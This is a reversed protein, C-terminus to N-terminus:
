NEDGATRRLKAIYFGDCGEDPLLQREEELSFEPHQKLLQRTNEGNEEETVTCTSYLLVGGSKVYRVAVDLIERQLAALKRIDEEKVRYKLDPKHGIVGLGSCPLDALVIDAGDEWTPDFKLADWVEAHVNPTRCRLINERIREVKAGTKDRATVTGGTRAPYTEVSADDAQGEDMRQAAHISKGGPAACVDLVLDGPRPDATEVAMMSSVDQPYLTGDAFEPINELSDVGELYFAYPLRPDVSVSIGRAELSAKVEEPSRTRTDVRVCVPREALYAALIRECRGEGFSAIYRDVIWELMSYQVSLSRVPDEEGSPFAIRDRNRAINRLVGNVYGTLGSFGRQRALRVAENCVASDPVSDMYLLQYVGSELVARIVPKMKETKIDSFQDLIYDLEIRREITGRSLRRIFARDRGTLESGRGNTGGTEGAAGAAAGLAEGVARDLFKGDREVALLIDLVVNRPNSQEAM